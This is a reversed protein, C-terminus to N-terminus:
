KLLRLIEKIDAESRLQSTKITASDTELATIRNGDKVITDSLEKKVVEVASANQTPSNLVYTIMWGGVVMLASIGIAGLQVKGKNM